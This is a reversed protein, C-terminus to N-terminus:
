LIPVRVELGVAMSARDVKTLVDDPLYGGLDRSQMWLVPDAPDPGRVPRAATEAGLVFHDGYSVLADYVSELSSAGLVAGLKHLRMGAQPPRRNRPLLAVLRDLTAPPAARLTAGLARRLPRPIGGLRSWRAALQHRTYGAFVEDGGDGSLAVTVSRRAVQSVLFTPIQSSDAFPEDYMEPLRPILAAGEDADFRIETHDTGLHTSVMRAHDAEDYDQQGFGVTFTKIPRSSQTQMLATVASSDIGGSLFTGLPVDAVMRRKVADSMLAEIRARADEDTEPSNPAPVGIEWFREQRVTGDAAITVIEAPSVKKVENYISKEGTVYGFRVLDAVANRNITTTVRPHARIARLESGFAFTNGFRGWYMPKIGLRDRILSLTRTERDWVAFAFMGILRRLTPAIGWRAFGEVVVETDSHGRFVVGASELEARLDNHNYIEGNYSVVYRGNGSAMPQHGAASLDIISLRRHGLAIGADDDAWAGSDDPGRHALTDAMTRALIDLPGGAEGSLQLFGAVGCM